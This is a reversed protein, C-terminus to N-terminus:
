IGPSAPQSNGAAAEVQAVSQTTVRGAAEFCARSLRFYAPDSLMDLFQDRSVPNGDDDQLNRVDLVLFDRLLAANIERRVANPIRNLDGNVREAARALRQAQADVFDDTYGRTNIELDDYLAENVRIWAGDSIARTDSRFDKLRAM